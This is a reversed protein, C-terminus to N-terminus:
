FRIGVSALWTWGTFDLDDTKDDVVGAPDSEINRVRFLTYTGGLSVPFDPHLGQDLYPITFTIGTGLQWFTGWDEYYAQRLFPLSRDGKGHNQFMTGNAAGVNLQGYLETRPTFVPRLYKMLAYIGVYGPQLKFDDDSDFVGPADVETVGFSGPDREGAVSYNLGLGVYTYGMSSPIAMARMQYELGLFSDGDIEEGAASFNYTSSPGWRCTFEQSHAIWVAHGPTAGWLVLFAALGM